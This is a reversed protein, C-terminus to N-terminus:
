WMYIKVKTTATHAKKKKLSFSTGCLVDSTMGSGCLVQATEGLQTHAWSIAPGARLERLSAALERCTVGAQSPQIVAWPWLAQTGPIHQAREGRFALARTTGPHEGAKLLESVTRLILGRTEWQVAIENLWVNWKEGKCTLFLCM